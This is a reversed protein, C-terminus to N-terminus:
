CGDNEGGDMKAGCNPCYNTKDKSVWEDGTCVMMEYGRVANGPVGCHSCCIVGDESIWNAHVVEKVKSRDIFHDCGSEVDMAANIIKSFDICAEYHFCDKCTAM